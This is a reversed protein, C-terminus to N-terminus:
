GYDVAGGVWWEPLVLYGGSWAFSWLLGPPPLRTLDRWSKLTSRGEGGEIHARSIPFLFTAEKNPFGRVIFM